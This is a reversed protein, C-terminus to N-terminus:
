LGAELLTHVGTVFSDHKANNLAKPDKDEAAQLITEQLENQSYIPKSFGDIFNKNDNFFETLVKAKEKRKEELNLKDAKWKKNDTVRQYTRAMGGQAIFNNVQGTAFGVPSAFVGMLAGSLFTSFGEESNQKAAAKELDNHLYEMFGGRVQTGKVNRAHYSKLSESIVDQGLEQFGEMSSSIASNLASKLTIQSAKKRIANGLTKQLAEVAVKGGEKRLIRYSDNAVGAWRNTGKMSKFMNDFTIANTAYILGFNASYVRDRVKQAEDDILKLQSEPIETGRNSKDLYYDDFMQQKFEKAALDAELKSESHSMTIKRADRVIAGAGIATQRWGNFDELKDVTKLFDFTNELPNLAKAFGKVSGGVFKGTAGM